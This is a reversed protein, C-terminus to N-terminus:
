KEFDIPLLVSGDEGVISVNELVRHLDLFMAEIRGCIAFAEELGALDVGREREIESRHLYLYVIRGFEAVAISLLDDRTM